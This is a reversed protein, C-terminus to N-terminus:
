LLPWLTTVALVMALIVMLLWKGASGAADVAGPTADASLFYGSVVRAQTIKVHMQTCLTTIVTPRTSIFHRTLYQQTSGIGGRKEQRSM